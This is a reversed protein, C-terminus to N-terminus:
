PRLSSRRLRPAPAPTRLRRQMATCDPGSLVAPSCAERLRYFDNLSVVDVLGPDSEPRSLLEDPTLPSLDNRAYPFQAGDANFRNIALVVGNGNRTFVGQYVGRGTEPDANFGEALFTNM